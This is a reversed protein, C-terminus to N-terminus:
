SFSDLIDDDGLLKKLMVRAKYLKSKSAVAEIGIMEGIEKHTFGEVMSLNLITRYMAPLKQIASLLYDMSMKDYAGNETTKLDGPQQKEKAKKSRIFDLSTTVFIRRAWGEFSGEERFFSLNRYLKIFGEQFFDEADATNDAYRLCLSFMKGALSNYIIEFARDNGGAAQRIVSIDIENANNENDM